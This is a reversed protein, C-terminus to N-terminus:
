FGPLGTYTGLLFVDLFGADQHVIMGSTATFGGFSVSSTSFSALSTLDLTAPSYTTGLPVIGYDGTTLGSFMSDPVIGVITILTTNSLDTGNITAGFSGMAMSGNIMVAQSSSGTALSAVALAVAVAFKRVSIHMM